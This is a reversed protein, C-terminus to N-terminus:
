GNFWGHRHPRCKLHLEALAGVITLVQQATSARQLERQLLPSTARASRSQRFINLTMATMEAKLNPLPHSTLFKSFDLRTEDQVKGAHNVNSAWVRQFVCLFAPPNQQSFTLPKVLPQKPCRIWDVWFAGLSLFSGLELQCEEALYWLLSAWPFCGSPLWTPEALAALGHFERSDMSSLGQFWVMSIWCHRLCVQSVQSLSSM